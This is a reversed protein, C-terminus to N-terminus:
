TGRKVWGDYVLYGILIAALVIAILYEAPWQVSAPHVFRDPEFRWVARGYESDGPQTVQTGAPRLTRPNPSHARATAAM